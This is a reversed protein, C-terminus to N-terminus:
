YKAYTYKIVLGKRRFWLNQVQLRLRSRQGVKSFFKLMPWLKKIRRSLAKMNSMHTGQSLAKEITGNIKLTYGQGHGKVYKKLVKVNAM